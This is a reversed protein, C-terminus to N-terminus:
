REHFMNGLILFLFTILIVTEIIGLAISSLWLSTVVRAFVSSDVASFFLEIFSLISSLFFATTAVLLRSMLKLDTNMERLRSLLESNSKSPIVSFVAFLFATAISSFSLSASMIDTYNHLKSPTIGFMLGVVFIMVSLLFALWDRHFTEKLAKIVISLQM